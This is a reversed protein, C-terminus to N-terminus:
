RTLPTRRESGAGQRRACLAIGLAALSLLAPADDECAAGASSCRCSSGQLPPPARPPLADESAAPPDPAADPGADTAASPEPHQVRWKTELWDLIAERHAALARREGQHDVGPLVVWTV